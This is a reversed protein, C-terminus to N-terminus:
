YSQINESEIITFGKNSTNCSEDIMCRAIKEAHVGAYRKLKGIMLPTLIRMLVIGIKEGFRFEKRNGLIFSPRVVIARDFGLKSLDEELKGKTRLYFNRSKPDAGISSVHAIVKIGNHIACEAAKLNYTHDIKFQAEQSGAKKITTGLACFLIDGHIKGADMNEFDFAIYHTKSHTNPRSSRVLAIVDTFRKDNELLRILHEGVLGTAGIVVAKM